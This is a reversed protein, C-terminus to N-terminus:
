AYGTTAKVKGRFVWYSWATYGLIVPLLMLTGVLLFAQSRPAAAADQLTLVHPVVYPFLSVALGAFCLAFIAMAAVFPGAQSRARRLSRDALWFVLATALPLPSLWLWHSETFWREHVRPHVFPTYLSVAAIFAATAALGRRSMRRAWAQLEGETKLVLWTAGLLAYGAVVGLGTVLVFPHLWDWSTGAYLGDVVKFGHVYSGLILGQAFAAIFSGGFFAASWARQWRTAKLRFEFAVGRFVLGLLMLLIPFYLAPMLVAFAVPFAALLGAGGMVLWTENGDWIPAVSAMMVNRADTTPALPYLIGVGLDFGDLLVYMFVALAMIVTWIPVLDIAM